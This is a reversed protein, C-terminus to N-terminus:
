VASCIRPTSGNPLKCILVMFQTIRVEVEGFDMNPKQAWEPEPPPSSTTVITQHQTFFDDVVDRSAPFDPGMPRVTILDALM